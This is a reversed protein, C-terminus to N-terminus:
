VIVCGPDAVPQAEDSIGFGDNPISITQFVDSDQTDTTSVPAISNDIVPAAVAALVLASLVHVVSIFRM